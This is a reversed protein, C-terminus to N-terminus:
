KVELYAKVIPYANEMFAELPQEEKRKGVWYKDRYAEVIEEINKGKEKLGCILIREEETIKEYIEWYNDIYEKPLVGYHPSIVIKPNYKKCRELSSLSEKYNKLISPYIIEKGALVGTSESAFMIGEPEMVYTVSCDTHGKTELAIIKSPMLEIIDNDYLVKDVILGEKKIEISKGNLYYDSAIQGLSAITKIANPRELVAQAKQSGCSILEPWCERLYPLAGVHDYHTHSLFVYDLNEKGVKKLERSINEVLRDGCYAMGTDILATKKNGLILLSEGGKGATVRIINEPYNSRKSAFDKEKKMLKYE